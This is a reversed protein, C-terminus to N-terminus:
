GCRAAGNRLGGGNFHKCFLLYYILPHFTKGWDKTIISCVNIGVILIGCKVCGEEERTTRKEVQSSEGTWTSKFSLLWACVVHMHMSAM